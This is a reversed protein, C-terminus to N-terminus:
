IEADPGPDYRYWLDDALADADVVVGQAAFYESLRTVDRRLIFAADPNAYLDTVQPFDILTIAGDWYLINYASLDGHILHHDLLLRVNDMVRRFLPGAETRNLGVENLAPAAGYEDGIFEMLIASGNHAIPKPVDAGADHLLTQTRYETGIWMMFDLHLGYGSKNQVATRERRSRIQKGEADRLM